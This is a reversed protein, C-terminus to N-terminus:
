TPFTPLITPKQLKPTMKFPMFIVEVGKECRFYMFLFLSMIPVRRRFHRWPGSSLAETLAGPAFIIHTLLCVGEFWYEKIGANLLMDIDEVPGICILYMQNTSQSSLKLFVVLSDSTPATKVWKDLLVPTSLKRYALRKINQRLSGFWKFLCVTHNTHTHHSGTM